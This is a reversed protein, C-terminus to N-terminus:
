SLRAGPQPPTKLKRTVVSWAPRKASLGNEGVHLVPGEEFAAAKAEAVDELVDGDLGTRYFIQSVDLDLGAPSRRRWLSASSGRVVPFLRGAPGPLLVLRHPLLPM